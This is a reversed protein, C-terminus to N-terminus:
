NAITGYAHRQEIYRIVVTIDDAHDATNAYDVKIITGAPFQKDFRYLFCKKSYAVGDISLDEGNPQLEEVDISTTANVTASKITMKESTSPATECSVIIDIIKSEYTLTLDVNVAEDAFVYTKERFPGVHINESM